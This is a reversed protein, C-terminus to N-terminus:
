GRVETVGLHPHGTESVTFGNSPLTAASLWAAPNMWSIRALRIESRMKGRRASGVAVIGHFVPEAHRLLQPVDHM